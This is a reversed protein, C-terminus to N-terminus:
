VLIADAGGPTGGGADLLLQSVDDAPLPAAEPTTLSTPDGGELAGGEIVDLQDEGSHDTFVDAASAPPPVFPGADAGFTPMVDGGPRGVIADDVHGAIFSDTAGLGLFSFSWGAGRADLADAAETGIVGSADTADDGWWPDLSPWTTLFWDPLTQGDASDVIITRQAPNVPNGRADSMFPINIDRYLNEPAQQTFRAPGVLTTSGFFSRSIEVWGPPVDPIPEVRWNGPGQQRNPYTGYNGFVITKHAESEPGHYNVTNNAYFMKLLYPNTAASPMDLGADKVRQWYEPSWMPSSLIPPRDRSARDTVYADAGVFQGVDPDYAIDNGDIDHRPQQKIIVTGSRDPLMTWDITNDVVVGQQSAVLSLVAAGVYSDIGAKLHPWQVDDDIGGGIQANAFTNGDLVVNVAVVKLAHMTAPSEFKSNRIVATDIRDIYVNHSLSHSFHSDEILITDNRNDSTEWGVMIARGVHHIYVNRIVINQSHDSFNGTGAYIATGSIRDIELNEVHLNGNPPRWGIAANAPSEESSFLRPRQGDADLVGIIHLGVSNSLWPTKTLQYEGPMIFLYAERNTPLEKIKEIFDDGPNVIVYDQDLGLWPKDPRSPNGAM